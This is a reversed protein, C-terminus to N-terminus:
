GIRDNKPMGALPFTIVNDSHASGTKSFANHDIKRSEIGKIRSGCAVMRARAAEMKIRRTKKRGERRGM